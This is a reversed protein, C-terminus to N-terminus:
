YIVDAEQGRDEANMMQIAKMAEENLRTDEDTACKVIQGAGQGSAPGTGAQAAPATAPGQQGAAKTAEANLRQIAKAAEENMKGDMLAPATGTAAAGPPPMGTQMLPPPAMLAPTGAPPVAGPPLAGPPLPAPANGPPQSTRYALQGVRASRIRSMVAGSPNYCNILPGQGMVMKQVDPPEVRLSQGANQDLRNEMIFKEVESMPKDRDAQAIAPPLPAPAAVAHQGFRGGGLGHKADRIRGVLAASPNSASRVPGRQLVAWQIEPPECKLERAAPADINSEAVFRNVDEDLIERIIRIEDPSRPQGYFDMHGFVVQPPQGGAAM